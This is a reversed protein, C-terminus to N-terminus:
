LPLWTERIHCTRCSKGSIGGNFDEGHCLACADLGRTNVAISHFNPSRKDLWGAPHGSPGNHCTYCSIGAVGGKFDGGHCGACYGTGTRSLRFGHFNPDGPVLWGSSPHGSQTTHCTKCSTGSFGGNFDKGHCVTCYGLSRSSAALGHYNQSAEEMWGFPHGSPGEHCSYCSVGSNGGKFDEGHCGACYKKGAQNKRVPHSNDSTSDLWGEELPHGSRSDHCSTCSVGSTGGAYDTGHCPTCGVLNQRSADLGHFKDSSKELWGQTPHGSPGGHCSYCSGGNYKKGQFNEGHCPACAGTGEAAVKIPHLGESSQKVWGVPHGGPGDHCSYCSVGSGQIGRYDAGHCAPCSVLGSLTVKNGHFDPSSEEAWEEPHVKPENPEKRDACGHFFLICAGLVLAFKRFHLYMDASDILGEIITIERPLGRM